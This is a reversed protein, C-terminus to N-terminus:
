PRPTRGPPAIVRVHGGVVPRPAPAKEPAPVPDVPDAGVPVAAEDIPGPDVRIPAADVPDPDAEPRDVTAPRPEPRVPRVAPATSPAAVVTVGGSAPVRAPEPHAAPALDSEPPASVVVSPAPTAAPRGSVVVSPTAAAAPRAPRVPEPAAAPVQTDGLDTASGWAPGLPAPQRGRRRLAVVGGVVAVLLAALAIPLWPARGGSAPNAASASTGGGTSTSAADTGSAAPDALPAVLTGVPTVKGTNAFGWNLLAKVATETPEHIQFLTAVITHGGRSAAGWFTRHALSTFGTKGGITGRYGHILLRNQTYIQYTSRTAGAAAPKGPFAYRLTRTVQRFDPLALAARAFLAMDYASSLQGKADLGSNNKVTTDDARLRHAMAQMEAVTTTMGGNADALAAAADNASPLLLGHWLDWITYTAGPVIGVHGGDARAEAWTATVVRNKDLRPMLTVATLTKLTSAPLVRTHAGKAALVEGTTLDAVLWTDADVAPLPTSGPGPRLVIGKAALDPGGVVEGARALSPAPAATAAVPAALLAVATLLAGAAAGRFPTPVDDLTVRGPSPPHV